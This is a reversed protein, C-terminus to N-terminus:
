FILAETGRVIGFRRAEAKTSYWVDFWECGYRSNKRDEVVFVKDGFLEPIQVETGFPLCNNAIVGDRVEAGSATIFPTTDTEDLSSSYATVVVEIVRPTPDSADEAVVLPVTGVRTLVGFVFFAGVISVFFKNKLKGFFIARKM